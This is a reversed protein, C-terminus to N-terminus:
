IGHTLSIQAQISQNISDFLIPLQQREAVNNLESPVDIIELIAQRGRRDHLLSHKASELAGALVSFYDDISEIESEIELVDAKSTQPDFYSFPMKKSEQQINSLLTTITPQLRTSVLVTAMPEDGEQGAAELVFLAYALSYLFGECSRLAVCLNGDDFYVARSAPDGILAGESIKSDLYIHVEAAIDSELIQDNTTNNPTHLLRESGKEEGQLLQSHVIQRRLQLGNISKKAMKLNVGPSRAKRDLVSESSDGILSQIRCKRGLSTYIYTLYQSVTEALDREREGMLSDLFIFRHIASDPNVDFSSALYTSTHQMANTLLSDPVQFNVYGALAEIKFGKLSYAKDKLAETIYAAVIQHDIGVAKALEYCPVAYDIFSLTSDSIMRHQRVARMDYSVGFLDIVVRESAFRIMQQPLRHDPRGATDPFSPEPQISRAETKHSTGSIKNGLRKQPNVSMRSALM